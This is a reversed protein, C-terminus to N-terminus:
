DNYVIDSIKFMTRYFPALTDVTLSTENHGNAALAFITAHSRDSDKGTIKDLLKGFTARASALAERAHIVPNDDAMYAVFTDPFFGLSISYNQFNYLLRARRLGFGQRLLFSVVYNESVLRGEILSTQGRTNLEYRVGSTQWDGEGFMCALDLLHISYDMLLTQAWRENRQLPPESNVSPSEFHVNVNLLKGPNFKNLFSIMAEANSKFRYNHCVIVPSKRSQAFSLWKELQAPSYCLPKEVLVPADFAELRSIAEVHAPGPTAVVFLGAPELRAGNIAHVQIGQENVYSSLDYANVKGKFGLRKLAPLHKQRVIRGFGLFTIAGLEPSSAKNSPSPLRFNPEQGDLSRRLALRWDISLEMGLRDQTRTTDFRHNRCVSRAKVFPRVRSKGILRLFIEGSVGLGLWFLVPVTTVGTGCGLIKCCGDLYEKRTPSDKDVLLLAESQSAPPEAVAHMVAQNLLERTILPMSGNSNGIALLRGWPLRFGTGGIPNNLGQDLIFGPRVLSLKLGPPLNNILHQETGIKLAGYIGKKKPNTEVGSQEDIFRAASKYVSLSSIHILHKVNHERCFRLLIDAYDLNREVSEGMLLIYNVVTDYSGSLHPNIHLQDVQGTVGEKEIGPNGRTFCVVEHGAQQLLKTLGQAAFSRHGCVLVRKHNNLNMGTANFDAV